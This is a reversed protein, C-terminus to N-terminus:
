SGTYRVSVDPRARKFRDIGDATIKTYGIGLEVLGSMDILISICSDSVQNHSLSISRFHQAGSLLQMQRDDFGSNHIALSKIQPMRQIQALAENTPQCGGFHLSHPRGVAAMQKLLSAQRDPEVDRGFEVVYLEGMVFCHEARLGSALERRVRSLEYFHWAAYVAAALLPLLM